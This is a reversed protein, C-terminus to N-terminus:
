IEVQRIIDKLCDASHHLKAVEDDTMPNLIKGRVGKYDVLLCASMTLATSAM